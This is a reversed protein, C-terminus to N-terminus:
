ITTHNENATINNCCYNSFDGNQFFNYALISLSTKIAANPTIKIRIWFHKDSPCHNASDLIVKSYFIISVITILSIDHSNYVTRNTFFNYASLPKKWLGQWSYYCVPDPVSYTPVVQIFLFNWNKSVVVKVIVSVCKYFFSISHLSFFRRCM